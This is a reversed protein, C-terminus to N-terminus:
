IFGKNILLLNNVTAILMGTLFISLGIRLIWLKCKLKWFAFGFFLITLAKIGIPTWVGLTNLEILNPYSLAVFTTILDTICFLIATLILLKDLPKM